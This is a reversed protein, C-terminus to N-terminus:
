EGSSGEMASEDGFTGINSRTFSMGMLFYAGVFAAFIHMLSIGFFCNQRRVSKKYFGKPLVHENRTSKAYEEVEGYESSLDGLSQRYETLDYEDDSSAIVVGPPDGPTADDADFEPHRNM